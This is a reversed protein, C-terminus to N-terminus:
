GTKERTGAGAAAPLEFWFISGGGPAHDYGIEGGLREVLLRSIALGLGFRGSSGRASAADQAFKQFLRPRMDESVGPGHDRVSIRIRAGRAEVSVRVVGAVPSFQIANSLLNGMVQNVRGADTRVQAGPADGAIELRVKREAALPGAAVVALPVLRALDEDRLTVVIQGTEINEIDVIDDVLRVLRECSANAVNVLRGAEPPLAGAAGGVLMGLAGRIATAPTRVEHSVMAVFESKLRSLNKQETIDTLLAYYGLVTGAPGHHPVLGVALDRLTGDERLQQREYGVTEGALARKIYPAAAAYAEEGMLEAVTRGVIRASPVGIWESFARNHLLVRESPDVYGISAPVADILLRLERSRAQLAAEAAQRAAEQRFGARASWGLLAGALLIGVLMGRELFGLDEAAAAERQSLIRQQRKRIEELLEDARADKATSAPAFALRAAKDSGSVRREQMLHELADLREAIAKGLEPLAGRQEPHEFRTTLDSLYLRIKERQTDFRAVLGPEGTILYERQLAEVEKLSARLGEIGAVQSLALREVRITENVARMGFYAATVAAALLAIGALGAFRSIASTTSSQASM